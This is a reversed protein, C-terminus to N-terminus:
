ARVGDMAVPGAGIARPVTVDRVTPLVRGLTMAARMAMPSRVSRSVVACRRKRAGLARSLERGWWSEHARGTELAAHLRAGLLAGGAIAWSMGEGTIPEVYGAADGVRYVRGTQAATTRSLRPTGRWGDCPVAADDVGVERCMAVASEHPSGCARVFAPDVAAGWTMAGAEDIVVGLYGARAVLMTLVGLECWAPRVTGIAGLGLRSRSQVHVEADDDVRSTRLGCAVVVAQTTVVRKGADDRLVVRAPEHADGAHEIHARTPMAVTVGAVRAADLLADDLARRSVVRIGAAPCRMTRGRWRVDTRVLRVARAEDLLAGLGQARLTEVGLGGLCAGCVKWRPFEAAEAVLVSRGRQALSRATMAGAPGGGIVVVDANM